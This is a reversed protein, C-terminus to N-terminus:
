PSARRDESMGPLIAAQNESAPKRIDPHKMVRAMIINGGDYRESRANKYWKGGGRRRLMERSADSLDFSAFGSYIIGTEFDASIIVFPLREKKLPRGNSGYSDYNEYIGFAPPTKDDSVALLIASRVEYLGSELNFADNRIAASNADTWIVYSLSSSCFVVWAFIRFLTRRSIFMLYFLVCGGSSIFFLTMVPTLEM